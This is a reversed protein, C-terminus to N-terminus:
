RATYSRAQNTRGNTVTFTGDGKIAARIFFGQDAGGASNINATLAEDANATAGNRPKRHLSWVDKIGPNARAREFVVADGGKDVGNNFVIVQPGLGRLLQPANSEDSGHQSAQFLDIPGLQNMPCALKHEAGATLDGLAVFDFANWRAVFGISQPDEDPDDQTVTAGACAPNPAATPLSATKGAATAITLTVPGLMIKMGPQATIRKAAAMAKMLATRYYVDFEDSTEVTAGHDIFNTITVAAALEPAGGIHDDHYHTALFYDLKRKGTEQELLAVIRDVDRAGTWGTDALLTENSPSILLTAAGGEADIWYIRFSAAPDVPPPMAPTGGTGPTAPADVPPTISADLNSSGLNGGSGNGGGGGGGRPNGASGGSPPSTPSGGAGVGQGGSGAGGGSGRGGTGASTGPSAPDDAQCGAGLLLVLSAAQLCRMMVLAQTNAAARGAALAL